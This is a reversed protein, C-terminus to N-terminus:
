KVPVEGRLVRLRLRELSLRLDKLAQMYPGMEEQVKTQVQDNRYNDYTGSNFDTVFRTWQLMRAYMTNYANTIEDNGLIQIFAGTSTSWEVWDNSYKNEVDQMRRKGDDHFWKTAALRVLEETVFLSMDTFKAEYYNLTRERAINELEWEHQRSITLSDGVTKLLWGLIISLIPASVIWYSQQSTFLLIAIIIAILIVLALTTFGNVKISKQKTDSM